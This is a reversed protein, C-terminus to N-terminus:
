PCGASFAQLFASVDFFNFIGDDTFDARPDGAAFDQLFASVDFFNLTGDEVFDAACVVVCSDLVGDNDSDEFPNFTRYELAVSINTNTCSTSSVASSPIVELTVGEMLVSEFDQASFGFSVRQGTSGCEAGSSVFADFVVAGDNFDFTIYESSSGLDGTVSVWILVSSDPAPLPETSMVLSIDTGFPAASGVLEFVRPDAQESDLVGDHDCDLDPDFSIQCADLQGDQDLDLTSDLVIDLSDVIGNSDCDVGSGDGIRNNAVFDDTLNLVRANDRQDAIGTAGGDYFVSPNSFHPVRSGPSYAMVSRWQNGNWRHGFGYDVYSVSANDPDHACGMNHGLEHAFTLNSLACDIDCVSFGFGQSGPSLWGLGCFGSLDVLQTVLDAAYANRYEHLEDAVGDYRNTLQRLIVREDNTTPTQIEVVGVLDLHLPDVESNIYSLNASEVMAAIYANISGVSGEVFQDYAVLVRVHAPSDVIVVGAQGQRIRRATESRRLENKARQDESLEPIMAGSCGGEHAQARTLRVVSGDRGDERVLGRVTWAGDDMWLVGEIGESDSAIVFWGEFGSDFGSDGQEIPGGYLIKGVVVRTGISDHEIVREPIFRTDAWAGHTNPFAIYASDVLALGPHEVGQAMASFRVVCEVTPEAQEGVSGLATMSLVGVVGSVCMSQICM